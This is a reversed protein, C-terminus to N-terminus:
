YTTCKRSFVCFYDFSNLKLNGKLIYNKYDLKFDWEYGKCDLLAICFILHLDEPIKSNKIIHLLKLTFSLKKKLIKHCNKEKSAFKPYSKEVHFM